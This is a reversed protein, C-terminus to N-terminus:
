CKEFASEKSDAKKTFDDSIAERVFLLTDFLEQMLFNAPCIFGYTM